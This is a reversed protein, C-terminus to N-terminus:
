FIWDEATIVDGHIRQRSLCTDDLLHPRSVGFPTIPGIM